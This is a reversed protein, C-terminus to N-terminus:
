CILNLISDEINKSFAEEYDTTIMEILPQQLLKGYYDDSDIMDPCYGDSYYAPVDPLTGIM